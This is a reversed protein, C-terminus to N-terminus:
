RTLPAIVPGVEENTAGASQCERVWHVVNLRADELGKRYDDGDVLAAGAGARSLLYADVADRLELVAQDKNELEM